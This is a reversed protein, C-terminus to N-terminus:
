DADNTSNIQVKETSEMKQFATIMSRYHSAAHEIRARDEATTRRVIKGPLGMVVSDPPVHIGEPVLAGAAILSGEGIVVGNLVIAGIGILCNDEVTAGHVVARHGISCNRGIHCPYGPDAHLVCGDQVNSGAAIEIPATDGRVVSMPFITCHDGIVVSGAVFATPAIWSTTPCAVPKLNLSNRDNLRSTGINHNRSPLSQDGVALDTCDALMRSESCGKLALSLKAVERHSTFIEAVDDDNGVDVMSVRRQDIAQKGLAALKAGALQCGLANEIGVVQFSLPANGNESFVDGQRVFPHLDVNDIRRSVGIKTAFDFTYEAHGITTQNQDIGGFARHRLRSKHEGFGKFHPELRKDHDILNIARVGTSVFHEVLDKIEKDFQSRVVFSRIEWNNVAARPFSKSGSVWVNGRVRNMRQHIQNQFL